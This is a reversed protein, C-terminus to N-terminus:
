SEGGNADVISDVDVATDTTAVRPKPAWAAIDLSVMKPQHVINGSKDKYAPFKKFGEALRETFQMNFLPRTNNPDAMITKIGAELEPYKAFAKGVTNSSGSNVNGETDVFSGTSSSLNVAITSKYTNSM